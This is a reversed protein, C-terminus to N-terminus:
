PAFLVCSKGAFRRYDNVHGLVLLLLELVLVARRGLRDELGLLLAVGVLRDEGLLRDVVVGVLHEILEPLADLGRELANVAQTSDCFAASTNSLAPNLM